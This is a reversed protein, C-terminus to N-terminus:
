WGGGVVVACSPMIVCGGLCVCVCVVVDMGVVYVGSLCGCVVYMAQIEQITRIYRKFRFFRLLKFIRLSKILKTSTTQGGDGGDAQPFFSFPLSAAVDIIFWTRLYQRAIQMRDFVFEGTAEDKYTTVFSLMIDLLFIADMTQDLETEGPFSFSTFGVKWPVKIVYFVTILLIVLQWAIVGASEPFFIFFPRYLDSPRNQTYSYVDCINEIYKEVSIPAPIEAEQKKKEEEDDKKKKKEDNKKEDDKQKMEDGGDKEGGTGGPGGSGAAEGSPVAMAKKWSPLIGKMSMRRKGLMARLGSVHTKKPPEAVSSSRERETDDLDDHDVVQADVNDLNNEDEKSKKEEDSGGPAVKNSQRGLKSKKRPQNPPTKSGPPMKNQSGARVMKQSGGTLSYASMARQLLLQSNAEGQTRNQKVKNQFSDIRSVAAPSRPSALGDEWPANKRSAQPSEPLMSRGQSRPSGRGSVARAAQQLRRTPDARGRFDLPGGGDPSATNRGSNPNSHLQEEEVYSMRDMSSNNSRLQHQQQQGPREGISGRPTLADNSSGNSRISNMSNGRSNHSNWFKARPFFFPKGNLEIALADNERLVDVSDVLDGYPLLYVVIMGSAFSTRRMIPHDAPVNGMATALHLKVLDFVVQEDGPASVFPPQLIHLKASENGGSDGNAYLKLRVGSFAARFGRTSSASSTRSAGDEDANVLSGASM